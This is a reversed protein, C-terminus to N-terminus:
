RCKMARTTKEDTDQGVVLVAPQRVSTVYSYETEPNYGATENHGPNLPRFRDMM